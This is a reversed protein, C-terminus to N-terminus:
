EFNLKRWSDFYFSLFLKLTFRLILIWWELSNRIQFLFFLIKRARNEFAFTFFLLFLILTDVPKNWLFAFTFMLLEATQSTKLSFDLYLHDRWSVFGERFWTATFTINSSFYYYFLKRLHRVWRWERLKAYSRFSDRLRSSFSKATFCFCSFFNNYSSNKVSCFNIISRNRFLSFFFIRFLHQHVKNVHGLLFLCFFLNQELLFSILPLRLEFLFRSSLHNWILL